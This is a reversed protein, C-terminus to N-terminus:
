SNIVEKPSSGEFSDSLKDVRSFFLKDTHLFYIFKTFDMYRWVKVDLNSPQTFNENWKYM